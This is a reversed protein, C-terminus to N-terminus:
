WLHCCFTSKPTPISSAQFVCSCSPSLVQSQTREPVQPFPLKRGTCPHPIAILGSVPSTSMAPFTRFSLHPCIVPETSVSHSHVGGSSHQSSHWSLPSLTKLQICLSACHPRPCPGQNTPSHSESTPQLSTAATHTPVSM